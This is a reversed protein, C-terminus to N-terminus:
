YHEVAKKKEDLLECVEFFADLATVYESVLPNIVKQLQANVQAESGYSM